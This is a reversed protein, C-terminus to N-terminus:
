RKKKKPFYKSQEIKIKKAELKSPVIHTFYRVIHVLWAITGAAWLLYWFRASMFQIREYSFFFLFLGVIGMVLLVYGVQQFGKIVLPEDSRRSAVLRIIVGFLIMFGFFGFLFTESSALLPAPTLDFWFSPQFLNPNILM